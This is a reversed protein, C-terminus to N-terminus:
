RVIKEFVIRWMNLPHYREGVIEQIKNAYVQKRENLHVCVPLYDTPEYEFFVLNKNGMINKQSEANSKAMEIAKEKTRYADTSVMTINGEHEVVASLLYVKDNEM